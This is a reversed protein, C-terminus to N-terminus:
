SPLKPLDPPLSRAIEIPSATALKELQGRLGQGPSTSLLWQVFDVVEFLTIDVPVAVQVPRGSTGLTVNIATMRVQQPQADVAAIAAGIQDPPQYGKPGTM